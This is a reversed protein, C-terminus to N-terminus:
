DLAAFTSATVCGFTVNGQMEYMNLLGFVSDPFNSVQIIRVNQRM